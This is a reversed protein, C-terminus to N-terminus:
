FYEDRLDKKIKIIRFVKKEDSIKPDKIVELVMIKEHSKLEDIEEIHRAIRELSRRDSINWSTDMRPKHKELFDLAEKRLKKYLIQKARYEGYPGPLAGLGKAGHEELKTQRQKAASKKPDM